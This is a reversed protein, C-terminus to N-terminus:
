DSIKIVIKGKFSGTSFYSFADRTDSLSFVKDVVPVFQGKQFLDSLDDLGENPKYGMITLRRNDSSGFIKSLRTSLKGTTMMKLIASTSGGVMVFVGETALARKYNQLPRDAVVDLIM